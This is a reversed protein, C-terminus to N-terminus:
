LCSMGWWSPTAQLWLLYYTQLVHLCGDSYGTSNVLCIESLTDQLLLETSGAHYISNYLLGLLMGCTPSLQPLVDFARRVEYQSLMSHQAIVVDTCM